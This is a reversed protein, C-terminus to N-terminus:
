RRQSRVAASAGDAAYGAAAGLGCGVVGGAAAGLTLAGPYVWLAAQGSTRVATGLVAAAGGAM